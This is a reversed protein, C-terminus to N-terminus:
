GICRAPAEPGIALLSTRAQIGTTGRPNSRSSARPPGIGNRRSDVKKTAFRAVNPHPNYQRDGCVDATWLRSRLNRRNERDHFAAAPQFEWHAAVQGRDGTKSIEREPVECVESGSSPDGLM